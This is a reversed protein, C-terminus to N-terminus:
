KRREYIDTRYKVPLVRLIGFSPTRLYCSSPSTSRVSYSSFSLWHLHAKRRTTLAKSTSRSVTQPPACAARHRLNASASALRSKEAIWRASGDSICDIVKECEIGLGLVRCSPSMLYPSNLLYYECLRTLELGGFHSTSGAMAEGIRQCFSSAEIVRTSM